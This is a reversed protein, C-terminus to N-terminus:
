LVGITMRLAAFFREDGAHILRQSVSDQLFAEDIGTRTPVRNMADAERQGELPASAIFRTGVLVERNKM